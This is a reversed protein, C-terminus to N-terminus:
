LVYIYNARLKRPDFAAKMQVNYSYYLLDSDDIRPTNINLQIALQMCRDGNNYARIGQEWYDTNRSQRQKNSLSTTKGSEKSGTTLTEQSVNNILYHHYWSLIIRAPWGFIPFGLLEFTKLLLLDPLM